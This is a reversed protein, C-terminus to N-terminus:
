CHGASSKLVKLHTDPEYIWGNALYEGLSTKDLKPKILGLEFFVKPESGFIFNDSYNHYYLPRVGLHDRVLYM